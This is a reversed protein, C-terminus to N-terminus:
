VKKKKYLYVHNANIHNANYQYFRLYILISFYDPLDFHQFLWLLHFVKLETIFDVIQIM